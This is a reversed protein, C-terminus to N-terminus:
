KSFCSTLSLYASVCVRTSLTVSMSVSLCILCSPLCLSVFSQSLTIMLHYIRWTEGEGGRLHVTELSRFDRWNLYGISQTHHTHTYTHPTYSHTYTYCYTHICTNHTHTYIHTHTHAHMRVSTQKSLTENEEIYHTVHELRFFFCM